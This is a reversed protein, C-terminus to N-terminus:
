AQTGLSLFVVKNTPFVFVIPSFLFNIRQLVFFGSAWFLESAKFSICFHLCLLLCAKLLNLKEKESNSLFRFLPRPCAALCRHHNWLLLQTHHSLAWGRCHNPTHSRLSGLQLMLFPPSFNAVEPAFSVTTCHVGVEKMVYWVVVIGSWNAM